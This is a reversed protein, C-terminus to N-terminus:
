KRGANMVALILVYLVLVPLGYIVNAFFNDLFRSGFDFEVPLPWGIIGRKVVQSLVIAAILWVWFPGPSSIKKQDTM